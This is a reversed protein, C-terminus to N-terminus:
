EQPEAVKYDQPILLGRFLNVEALSLQPIHKVDSIIYPELDIEQNHLDTMIKDQGLDYAAQAERTYAFHRQGGEAVMIVNKDADVSCHKLRLARLDKQYKTNHSECAENINEDLQDIAYHFKTLPMKTNGRLMRMAQQVAAIKKYTRKEM